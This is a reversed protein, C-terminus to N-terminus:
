TDYTTVLMNSASTVEM